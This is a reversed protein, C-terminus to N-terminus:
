LSLRDTTHSKCVASPRHKLNDRCLSLRDGLRRVINRNKIKKKQPLSLIVAPTLTHLPLPPPTMREKNRPEGEGKAPIGVFPFLNGKSTEGCFPALPRLPEASSPHALLPFLAFGFLHEIFSPYPISLLLSLACILSKRETIASRPLHMRSSTTVISAIMSSFLLIWCFCDSSLSDRKLRAFLLDRCRTQSRCAPAYKESDGDAEVTLTVRWLSGKPENTRTAFSNM